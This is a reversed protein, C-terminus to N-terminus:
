EREEWCECSDNYDTWDALYDSEDCVCIWDDSIGEFAHYRCTGCVEPAAHNREFHESM